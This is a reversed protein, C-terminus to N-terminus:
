LAAKAILDCPERWDARGECRQSSTSPLGSACVECLLAVAEASQQGTDRLGISLRDAIERARVLKERQAATLPADSAFRQAVWAIEGMHKRLWHPMNGDGRLGVFLKDAPTNVGARIIARAAHRTLEM